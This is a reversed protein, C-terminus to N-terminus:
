EKTTQQRKEIAQRRSINLERPADIKIRIKKHFTSSYYPAFYITIDDGIKVYDDSEDLTLVLM